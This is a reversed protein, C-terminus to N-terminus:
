FIEFIFNDALALAKTRLAESRVTWVMLGQNREQIVKSALEATLDVIGYSIFDAKIAAEVDLNQMALAQKANSFNFDGDKLHDCSLFGVSHQNTLRLLNLVTHPNFSKIFARGSFHQLCKLVEKELIDHEFFGQSDTYTKLEVVLTAQKPVQSVLSKFSPILCDTSKLKFAELDALPLEQVSENHGCLRTLTEDHFVVAQHDKTLRVDFEVWHNKHCADAIAEASNEPWLKTFLGRHAISAGKVNRFESPRV